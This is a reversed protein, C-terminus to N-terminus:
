FDEMDYDPVADFQSVVFGAVKLAHDLCSKITCGAMYKSLFAASFSDGAGVTSAVEAEVCDGSYAAKQVCDLVYAGDSGRTIIICRLGDYRQALEKAAMVYSANTIGLVACVAPLEEESIKLMSASEVAFKVTAANYFPPRINIDVFIEKFQHKQLIEKLTKFNAESRLALTGFYLVDFNGTIGAGDIRDYAVDQLLDYSPVSQEDLTVLCKGTEKQASQAVYDARVNWRELQRLAEAGLEDAGLASVMYADEGHKALHAAFNLPAGGLFKKDPYVDWLIEGFSLVKM